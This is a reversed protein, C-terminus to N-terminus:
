WGKVNGPSAMVSRGTYQGRDPSQTRHASSSVKLLAAIIGMVAWIMVSYQNSLFSGGAMLGILSAMLVGAMGKIETERMGPPSPRNRVQLRRLERLSIFFMAVFAIFGPIGLEAITHFWISHAVSYKAGRGAAIREAIDPHRGEAVTFNNIGVGTVPNAMTYEMARAWINRRGGVGTQGYGDDLEQITEMREWYDTTAVPISALVIVAVVVARLAPRVGKMLFVMFALVAVIAIFGGRSQTDIIAYISLFAGLGSAIRVWTRRGVLAFYVLIPLGSVLFMASDNPDYGGAGFGRSFLRGRLPALLAFAATGFAFVGMLQRVDEFHRVAAVVLLFILFSPAFTGLLYSAAGGQWLAFPIGVAAWIALFYAAKMMPSKLRRPARMGSRNAFWLGLGAIILVLGPRLASAGPVFVHLRAQAVLLLGAVVFLFLDWPEAKTHYPKGPRSTTQPGASRPAARSSNSSHLGRSVLGKAHNPVNPHM